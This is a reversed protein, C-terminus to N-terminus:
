FLSNILDQRNNAILARKLRNCSECVGCHKEMSRYCSRIFEFPVNKEIAIEVIKNKDFDILPAILNVPQNVSNAFSSNVANIFEIGNDKFTAAEEKNAGIIIHNFGYSDAFCAAINVFLGNRNPVWVAKATDEALEIKDLDEIPLEPINEESVLSTRTIESLWDLKIVKHEIGYYSCINKAAQAEKEFAKQGYDFTLAFSVNYEDKLYALSVVSDLGGSLLIISKNVVNMRKM